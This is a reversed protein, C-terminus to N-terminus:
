GHEGGCRAVTVQSVMTRAPEVEVEVEAELVTVAGSSVRYGTSRATM